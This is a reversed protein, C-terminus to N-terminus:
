CEAAFKGRCSVEVLVSLRSKRGLFDGCAEVLRLMSVVSWLVGGGRGWWESESWGM